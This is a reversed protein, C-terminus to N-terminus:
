RDTDEEQSGAAWARVRVASARTLEARHRLYCAACRSPRPGWTMGRRRWAFGTGCETCVVTRPASQAM